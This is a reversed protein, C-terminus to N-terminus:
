MQTISRTLPYLFCVLTCCLPYRLPLDFIYFLFLTHSIPFCTYFHVTGHMKMSVVCKNLCTQFWVVSLNCLTLITVRYLCMNSPFIAKYVSSFKTSSHYSSCISPWVEESHGFIANDVFSFSGFREAQNVKM